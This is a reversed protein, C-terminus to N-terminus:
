VTVEKATATMADSVSLPITLTAVALRQAVAIGERTVEVVDDADLAPNVVQGWAIKSTAGLSRALLATAATQAETQTTILASTLFKPRKGYQGLYYTRSGPDTDWLEARVPVGDAPEGCVIAGNYTQETDTQRDISTLVAEPGDEYVEVPETLEPDPVSQIVARGDQDFFVEWGRAEALERADKWPDNDAEVGLVRDAPVTNNAGALTVVEIGPLRDVLIRRIAEQYTVSAAIQTPQTWRNRSIRLSRDSGSVSVIRGEGSDQVQQGTLMFVGLTAWETQGSWTVGRRVVVETGFPGLLGEPDSLTGDEDLVTMTLTRRVARTSDVSVSGGLPHLTALPQQSVPDLVYVDVAAVHSGRVLSRFRDSVPYM